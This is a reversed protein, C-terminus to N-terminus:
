SSDSDRSDFVKVGAKWIENWEVDGMINYYLWNGHKRGKEYFGKTYVWGDYPDIYFWPGELQGNVFNSKIFLQGGSGYEERLGELIGLKYNEVQKPKGNNYYYEWRGVKKGKDLSGKEKLHGNEWYITIIGKFPTDKFKEFYIENREVLQAWTFTKTLGYQFFTLYIPIFFIIVRQSKIISIAIGLM